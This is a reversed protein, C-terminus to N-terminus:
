RFNRCNVPSYTDCQWLRVCSSWLMINPHVMSHHRDGYVREHEHCRHTCRQQGARPHAPLRVGRGDRVANDGRGDVHARHMALVGGVMRAVAGHAPHPQNGPAAAVRRGAQVCSPQRPGFPENMGVGLHPTEPADFDGHDFSRRQLMGNAEDPVDSGRFRGSVGDSGTEAPENAIHRLDRCATLDAFAVVERRDDRWIRERRHLAVDHRQAGDIAQTLVAGVACRLCANRGGAPVQLQPRLLQLVEPYGARLDRLHPARTLDRLADRDGRRGVPKDECPLDGLALTELAPGLPVPNGVEAADPDHRLDDARFGLVHPRSRSCAHCHGAPRRASSARTLM